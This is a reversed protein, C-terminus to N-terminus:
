VTVVEYATAYEIFDNMGGVKGVAVQDVLDLYELCTKCILLKTGNEVLKTLHALM